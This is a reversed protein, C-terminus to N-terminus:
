AGSAPSVATPRVRLWDSLRIRAIRLDPEILPSLFRSAPGVLGMPEAGRRSEVAEIAPTARAVVATATTSVGFDGSFMAFYEAPTKEVIQKKPHIGLFHSAIAHKFDPYPSSLSWVITNDGEAKVATIPAIYSSSMGSTKWREHAFVVDEAVVPSGDSYKAGTKLKHTITRGDTSIAESEVLDMRPVLNQDYRYLLGAQVYMPQYDTSPGGSVPDLNATRAGIVMTITECQATATPTTLTCRPGPDAWALPLGAFIATAAIWLRSFRRSTVDLEM